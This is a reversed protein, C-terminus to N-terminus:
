GEDIDDSQNSSPRGYKEALERAARAVVEPVSRAVVEAVLRDIAEPPLLAAIAAGTPTQDRPGDLSRLHLQPQRTAPWLDELELVEELEDDSPPLVARSEGRFPSAPTSALENEDIELVQGPPLVAANPGRRIAEMVTEVLSGISQFPKILYGNAGAERALKHDLPHLASALLIIPVRDFSSVSRIERCLEYGDSEPLALDALVLDPPEQRLRTFAEAVSGATVIEVNEDSFALGIIQRVTASDDALLIRYGVLAEKQKEPSIRLGTKFRIALPPATRFDGPRRVVCDRV